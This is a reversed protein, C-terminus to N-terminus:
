KSAQNRAQKSAQKSAQKGAQKRAARSWALKGKLNTVQDSFVSVLESSEEPFCKLWYSVSKGISFGTTSLFSWSSCIIKAFLILKIFQYHLHLICYQWFHETFWTGFRACWVTSDATDPWPALLIVCINEFSTCLVLLLKLFLSVLMTRTMRRTCCFGLLYPCSKQLLSRM